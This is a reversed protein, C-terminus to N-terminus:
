QAEEGSRPRRRLPADGSWSPAPGELDYMGLRDMAEAVLFNSGTVLVSEPRLSRARELAERVSGLVEVSGPATAAARIRDRLSGPPLARYWDPACVLVAAAVHGISFGDGGPVVISVQRQHLHDPM